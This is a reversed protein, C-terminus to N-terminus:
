AVSYFLKGVRKIHEVLDQNEIADMRSLDIKYPLLLDDLQAELALLKQETFAKGVLTLDIDSGAHYSGKARSGYLIAREIEPYKRFVMVIKEVVSSPLGFPHDSSSQLM